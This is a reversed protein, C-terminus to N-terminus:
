SVLPITKDKNPINIPNIIMNHGIVKQMPVYKIFSVSLIIVIKGNLIVKIKKPDNPIIIEKRKDLILLFVTM